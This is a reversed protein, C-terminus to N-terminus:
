EEYLPDGPDISELRNIRAGPPKPVRGALLPDDTKKMWRDLRGSLESYVSACRPDHILNVREAPDLTLDFLEERARARELLGASLLADKAPSADINAPVHRNHIDYRRILKHTRTRVCRHPDYAAHYNIESFVEDRVENAEGSLLPLLSVGELWAPRELGALECITPFLDLHSVLADSVCGGRSVGPGALILAVGTGADYCSCKHFPMALGHDTTFILLTDGALGARDLAELVTGACEDVTRAAVMYRAMDERNARCDALPYPLAVYDPNVGGDNEPYARHTNEMGFSLFFPKEHPGGIFNAAASACLSDHEAKSVSRPVYCKDYGIADTEAAEHQVGFLCTEYGHGGLFRALHRDYDNLSFGRHALGTMGCAHPSMGTLLSARSPSCTPACCYASRFLLGQSAMRMINPTPINYGYPQFYRGSDHTHIYVINM